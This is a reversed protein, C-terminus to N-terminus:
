MRGEVFSDEDFLMGPSRCKPNFYGAGVERRTGFMKTCHLSSKVKLTTKLTGDKALTNWNRTKLCVMLCKRGLISMSLNRGELRSHHLSFNLTTSLPTGFEYDSADVLYSIDVQTQIYPKSKETQVFVLPRQLISM